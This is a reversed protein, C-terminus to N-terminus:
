NASAGGSSSSGSSAGLNGLIGSLLGPLKSVDLQTAGSPASISASGIAMRIPVPFSTKQNAPAFQNIDLDAETLKDGSVYADIVATRGAPVKSAATDLGSIKSGVGPLSGFTSQLEPAVTAVLNHLNVTAAYHDRGSSSGVHTFTSSSQLAATIESRLKMVSQQLAAPNTGSSGAGQQELGKLTPALSQLSSHSLEVWQGQGLATIGPVYSEIQPLVKTFSDAKSPPQGVDTLLQHLDAKLYVSQGVYRFEVPTASGFSLGLDYSNNADHQAQASDIAEGGGTKESFFVVGTTLAKLEAPSLTSGGSRSEVQQAQATSIPISFRLAIQDQQGLNGVAASVAQQPDASSVKQVAGAGGASKSGSSCAGLTLGAGLAGIAVVSTMRLNRNRGPRGALGGRQMAEGISVPIGTGEPM